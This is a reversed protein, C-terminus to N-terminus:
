ETKKDSKQPDTQSPRIFFTCADDSETTSSVVEEPKILPRILTEFIEHCTRSGRQDVVFAYSTSSHNNM